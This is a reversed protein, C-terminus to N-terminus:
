ASDEKQCPVIRGQPNTCYRGYHTFARFPWVTTIMETPPVLGCVACRGETIAHEIWPLFPGSPGTM